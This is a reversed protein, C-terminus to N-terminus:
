PSRGGDPPPPQAPRVLVDGAEVRRRSGDALSVILAGDDEVDVAKGEFSSDPAAVTVERGLTVLRSKWTEFPERSGALAEEYLPEFENCIVALLEERPMELGTAEKVSTAIDAIEEIRSAELNVNVGVGVLAVVREPAHETEILVGAVKKSGILVDNPWRIEARLPVGKRATFTEIARAVALPTVYALSRLRELPPFLILTLYLNVDPPSVWARGARGRGANQSEALVLAGQPLNIRELMRRADDMTSESVPRYIFRRGVYDTHLNWQFYPKSFIPLQDGFQYDVMWRFPPRQPQENQVM